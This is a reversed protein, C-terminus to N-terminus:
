GPGSTCAYPDSTRPVWRGNECQLTATCYGNGVHCAETVNTYGSCAHPDDQRIIWHGNLCQLTETCFGEPESCADPAAGGGSSGGGFAALAAEAHAIRNSSDCQGCIEYRDQFAAVAEDVTTAARLQSDGYGLSTLEYWIFDLQLDLSYISAGHTSAYWAVNDHYSSDWRGGASWQAIGRGPGGGYQSITPSMGSEQDLNGVIGAAQVPSLGKGVFFEFAVKDNANESVAQDDRSDVSEDTGAGSCGTVLLPLALVASLLHKSSLRRSSIPM